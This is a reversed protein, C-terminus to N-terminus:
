PATVTTRSVNQTKTHIGQSCQCQRRRSLYALTLINGKWHSTSEGPIYVIQTDVKKRTILLRTLKVDAASGALLVVSTSM